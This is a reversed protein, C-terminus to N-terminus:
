PRTRDETTGDQVLDATVSVTVTGDALIDVDVAEDIAMGFSVPPDSGSDDDGVDFELGDKDSDLVVEMTSSSQNTFTVPTEADDLQEIGLLANSDSATGVNTMREAASRTFGFSRSATLLAGSALFGFAARRTLKQDAM